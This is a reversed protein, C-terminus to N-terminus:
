RLTIFDDHKETAIASWTVKKVRALLPGKWLWDILKQIQPTEGCAHLEVTNDDNNKVWGTINLTTAKKRTSERYFVGQVKGHIIARICIKEM